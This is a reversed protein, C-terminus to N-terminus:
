KSARRLIFTCMNELPRMKKKLNKLYLDSVSFLLYQYLVDKSHPQQISMRLCLQSDTSFPEIFPFTTGIWLMGLLINRARLKNTHKRVDGTASPLIDM